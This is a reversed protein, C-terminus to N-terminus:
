VQPSPTCCGPCPWDLLRGSTTMLSDLHSPVLGVRCSCQWCSSQAPLLHAEVIHAYTYEELLIPDGPNLLMRVLSDLAASSGSTIVVDMGVPSSGLNSAAASTAPPPQLTAPKHLTSVMDHAWNVLPAYGQGYGGCPSTLDCASSASVSAASCPSQVLGPDFVTCCCQAPCNM